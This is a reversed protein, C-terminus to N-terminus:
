RTKRDSGLGHSAHFILCYVRGLHFPKRSENSREALSYARDILGALGRNRNRSNISIQNKISDPPYVRVKAQRPKREKRKCM